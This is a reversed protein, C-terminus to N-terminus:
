ARRVVLVDYCIEKNCATPWTNWYLVALLKDAAMKKAMPDVFPTKTPTWRLSGRPVRLMEKLGAVSFALSKQQAPSNTDKVILDHCDKADTVTTFLVKEQAAV